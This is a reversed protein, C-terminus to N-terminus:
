AGDRHGSPNFVARISHSVEKSFWYCNIADDNGIGFVIVVLDNTPKDVFAFDCGQSWMAPLIQGETHNFTARADEPTGALSTVLGNKTMASFDGYTAVQEGHINIVMGCILQHLALVQKLKDEVDDGISYCCFFAELAEGAVREEGGVEVRVM